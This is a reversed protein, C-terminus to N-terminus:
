FAGIKIQLAGPLAQTRAAIRRQAHRPDVAHARRRRRIVLDFCRDAHTMSESHATPDSIPNQPQSSARALNSLSSISIAEGHIQRPVPIVRACERACSLQHALNGHSPLRVQKRLLPTHNFAASASGCPGDLCSAIGDEQRKQEGGYSVHEGERQGTCGRPRCSASASVSNVLTGRDKSRIWYAKVTDATRLRQASPLRGADYQPKVVCAIGRADSVRPAASPSM